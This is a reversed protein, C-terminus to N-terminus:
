CRPLCYIGRQRQSYGYQSSGIVGQNQQSIFRFQPEAIGSAWEAISDRSGDDVVILEYNTFAQQFVSEVTEPLFTMANYAPIVVSVQPPQSERM